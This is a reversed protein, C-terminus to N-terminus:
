ASKTKTTKTQKKTNLYEKMTDPMIEVQEAAFLSANVMIYHSEVNGTEKDVKTVPKWLKTNIIAKQGKIVKYGKLNWEAFTNLNEGDYEYGIMAAEATIIELNTM